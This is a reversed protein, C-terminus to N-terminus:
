HLVDNICFAFRLLCFILNGFEPTLILNGNENQVKSKRKANEVRKGADIKKIFFPQFFRQSEAAFLTGKIINLIIQNTEKQWRILQM